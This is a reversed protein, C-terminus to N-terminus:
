KDNTKEQIIKLYIERTLEIDYLADHFKTDDIEIGLELAVTMLKFNPMLPRREALHVAALTMIDIFPTWFFSGFYKDNQKEFWKRIFGYDFSANYAYFFAKDKKDYQDIHKSLIRTIDNKVLYPERFKNIQDITLQNVELASQEIVDETFPKVTYNFVDEKKRNIEVLGSIQVIGNKAPDLGTTEVDIFVKKM